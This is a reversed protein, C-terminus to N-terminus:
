FGGTNLLCEESDFRLHVAKNGFAVLSASPDAFFRGEDEKL